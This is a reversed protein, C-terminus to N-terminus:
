SQNAQDDNPQLEAAKMKAVADILDAADVPKSLYDDFGAAIARDRDESRAYATLAITRMRSTGPMKKIQRILQYGDRGPMGIDSILVDPMKANLLSVAEEASRAPTVIAGFRTLMMTLMVVADEEDDVILLDLGDLRAAGSDYSAEVDGATKDGSMQSVAPLTVTFSAGQAPGASEARITGGHLEVLHRAISLGLGLGGFQRRTGGEAQRFRDFVYPLFEPSIGAGNDSVSVVANAAELKLIVEIRGGDPTFKVANSVLNWIVQQLRNSDGSVILAGASFETNLNLKKGNIAPRVADLAAAVIAKLDVPQMDLGLKGTIIRSVDLIDEIIQNQSRASREIIEFARATTADDFDGRQAMKAWGLIANLPTRLEHSVNALFEDKLRSAEEAQRRAIKERLLLHEREEEALKRSTINQAIGALRTQNDATEAVLVGQVYLWVIGRTKPNISRLEIGYSTGKAAWEKVTRRMLQRDDPHIYQNLVSTYEPPLSFGMVREVNESWIVEGSAPDLEWSYILAADNAMQRHERSQRLKEEALKRGHIDETTGYWRVIRGSRSRRPYARSRMWCYTGDARKIRHEVDYPEGTEVAHKWAEDMRPKDDSHPAESWGNGLASEKSLGTLELWRDSFSEIAGDPGATWPIQPSLDVTYRLDEESDRLRDEALKRKTIDNFFVAVRRSEAAGVRFAYIDYWRKLARSGEIFRVPKGTEAVGGYIEVWKGELDPIIDRATRDSLAVEGPIGTMKEFVPNVEIFRYDFPKNMEDALIEIICFGQDISNFLLRYREQSERLRTEAEKRLTIDQIVTLTFSEGGIEIQEASLLGTVDGSRTSFVYEADRIHGTRRVTEMEAERDSPRAWLGLEITTRGIAEERSIGTIDVFTQNVELLKGTELSSITLSLPSANFAKAFREESERLRLESKKNETIERVLSVFGRVQGTDSDFDPAYSVHIIRERGDPYPMVREFSVAKGSLAAEFETRILAYAEASIVELVHKGRIEELALGFWETYRRNVFRYIQDSDIYAILVPIEDTIVRFLKENDRVARQAKKLATIDRAIKSAGVIRGDPTRIPSVTLSIDILTGDKRKRITEYHEIREGTQIRSLIRPEENEHGAPILMVIPQGIAEEATYGFVREAGNNWSTIFGDLTKSIIADDASEILASLWHSAIEPSMPDAVGKDARPSGDKDSM